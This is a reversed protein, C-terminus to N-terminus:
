AAPQLFVITTTALPPPPLLEDEALDAGDTPFEGWLLRKDQLPMISDCLKGPATCESSTQDWKAEPKLINKM